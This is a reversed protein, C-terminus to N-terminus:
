SYQSFLCFSPFILLIDINSDALQKGAAVAGEYTDVLGPDIVDGIESLRELLKAYMKMGREKLGPFQSWYIKHGTRLLGIRPRVKPELKSM